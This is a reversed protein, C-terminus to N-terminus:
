KRSTIVVVTFLVAILNLPTSCSRSLGNRGLLEVKQMSLDSRIVLTVERIRCCIFPVCDEMGKMASTTHLMFLISGTQLLIKLVTQTIQLGVSHFDVHKSQHCVNFFVSLLSSLAKLDELFPEEPVEIFFFLFVELVVCTGLSLIRVYGM